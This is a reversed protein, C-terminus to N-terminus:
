NLVRYGVGSIFNWTAQNVWSNKFIVNHGYRPDLRITNSDDSNYEVNTFELTVVQWLVFQLQSGKRAKFKSIDLSLIRERNNNLFYVIVKKSKTFATNIAEVLENETVTDSSFELSIEELNDLRQRNAYVSLEEFNSNPNTLSSGSYNNICIYYRNTPKHYYINGKTAATLPFSQNYGGVVGRDMNDSYNGMIGMAAQLGAGDVLKKKIDAM